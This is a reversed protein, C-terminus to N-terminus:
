DTTRYYYMLDDGKFTSTIYGDLKYYLEIYLECIEHNGRSDHEWSKWNLAMALETIYEINTKWANFARKFTDKIAPIGGHMDAISFDMYFTTKPIYGTMAEINWDAYTIM